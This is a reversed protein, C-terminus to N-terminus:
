SAIRELFSMPSVHMSLLLSKAMRVLIPPYNFYLHRRPRLSTAGHRLLPASGRKIHRHHRPYALLQCLAHVTLTVCRICLICLICLILTQSDTSFQSTHPYLSLSLSCSPLSFVLDTPTTSTLCGSLCKKCKEILISRLLSGVVSGKRKKENISWRM